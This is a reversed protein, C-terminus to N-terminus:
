YELSKWPTFIKQIKFIKQTILKQVFITYKKVMDFFIMEWTRILIKKRKHFSRTANIIKCSLKQFFIHANIIMHYDSYSHWKLCTFKRLKTLIKFSFYLIKLLQFKTYLESHWFRILSPLKQCFKKAFYDFCGKM